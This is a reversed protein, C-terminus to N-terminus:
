PSCLIHVLDSSTKSSNQGIVPFQNIIRSEADMDNSVPGLGTCRYHSRKIWNMLRTISVSSINYNGLEELERLM